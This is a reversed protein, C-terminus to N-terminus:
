YSGCEVAALRTGATDYYVKIYYISMLYKDVRGVAPVDISLQEFAASREATLDLDLTTFRKGLLEELEELTSDRGIELFSQDIDILVRDCTYMGEGNDACLFATGLNLYALIRCGGATTTYGPSGFAAAIDEPAAGLYGIYNVNGDLFTGTFLASGIADYETGAGQRTGGSFDGQYVMNGQGDYLTGVGEFLGQSFQGQYILSGNQYYSGSGEYLGAVFDGRYQVTSGDEEYAVGSGERIDNVFSGYYSLTHTDARYEMGTGSRVGQLFGGQYIMAGSEDYLTGEGHYLNDSFEGEYILVGNEYLSGYGNYRANLFEGTYVLNGETDYQTGSGTLQGGAVDGYYIVVGTENEIRAPGTYSAMKQSNLLITPTWLRGELWPYVVTSFVTVVIVVAIVSLGLFRKSIYVGFVHVYDKLSTPRRTMSKVQARVYQNLHVMPKAAMKVVRTINKTINAIQRGVIKSIQGFLDFIM